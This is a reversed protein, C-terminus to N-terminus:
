ELEDIMENYSTILKGIEESPNEVIIKENRKTLDTQNLRDSITQLSRTIYKSIFYALGIALLM